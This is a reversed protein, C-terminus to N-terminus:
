ENLEVDSRSPTYLARHKVQPGAKTRVYITRKDSGRSHCGFAQERSLASRIGEKKVRPDITVSRVRTGYAHERQRKKEKRVNRTFVKFVM